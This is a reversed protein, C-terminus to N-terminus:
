SRLFNADSATKPREPYTTLRWQPRKPSTSPSQARRKSNWVGSDLGRSQTISSVKAKQSSSTCYDKQRHKGMVPTVEGRYAGQLCTVTIFPRTDKFVYCFSDCQKYNNLVEVADCRATVLTTGPTGNFVSCHVPRPLAQDGVCPVAPLIIICTGHAFNRTTLAIVSKRFFFSTTCNQEEEWTAPYGILARTLKICRECRTKVM